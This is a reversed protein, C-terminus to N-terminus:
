VVRDEDHDRFAEKFVNHEDEPLYTQVLVDENLSLAWVLPVNALYRRWDSILMWDRVVGYITTTVGLENSKSAYDGPIIENLEALTSVGFLRLEEILDGLGEKLDLHELPYRNVRTWEDIFEGLNISNIEMDLDGAVVGRQVDRIYSDIESSLEDFGRDALELMGAYLYLKREAAPPLKGSFKYNRDHALEAWAHQLVTRVQFEFKLGDLGEYEPLDKRIPGLDCVYHSSRYGMQNVLLSADKISSNELDVKFAEGILEAVRSVQSEFFVIIRIGTLDTLQKVPDKYGKRKVKNVVSECDKVRGTVALYDVGNSKLLNEVISSVSRALLEHKPLTEALWNRLDVSNM